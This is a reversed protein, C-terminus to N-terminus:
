FGISLFRQIIITRSVVEGLFHTHKKYKIKIKLGLYNFHLM